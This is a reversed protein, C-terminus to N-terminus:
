TAETDGDHHLHVEVEGLGRGALAALPELYEPAYQEGPFFFSHRPPCGDSDRFERALAPYAEAWAAVRARGHADDRTKWLPEYHDCFAFLLHRPGDVRPRERARRWLDRVYGGMWKDLHKDRLRAIPNM